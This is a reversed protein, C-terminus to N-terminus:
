VEECDQIASFPKVIIKKGNNLVAYIKGNWSWTEM